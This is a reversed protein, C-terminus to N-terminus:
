SCRNTLRDIPVSADRRLANEVVQGYDKIDRYNRVTPRATTQHIATGIAAIITIPKRLAEAFGLEYYCSPREFTLDVLVCEASEIDRLTERLSTDPTLPDYTPTSALVGVREAARIILECKQRALADAGVPMIVQVLVRQGSV